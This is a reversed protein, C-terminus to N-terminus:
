IVSPQDLFLSGERILIMLTYNQFEYLPSALSYFLQKYNGQEINM